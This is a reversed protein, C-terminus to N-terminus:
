GVLVFESSGNVKTVEITQDYCEKIREIHSIILIFDYDAKIYDLVKPALSLNDEDFTSWGEDIAIFNPKSLSSFKTVALSVALNIVFSEYGSATSVDREGENTRVNVHIIGNNRCTEEYVSLTFDDTLISLIKNIEEEIVPLNYKILMFPVGKTDSMAKTLEELLALEDKLMAKEKALRHVATEHEKIRKILENLEFVSQKYEFVKETQQALSTELEKVHAAQLEKKQRLTQIEKEVMCNIERQREQLKATALATQVQNMECERQLLEKEIRHENQGYERIKAHLAADIEKQRLYKEYELDFSNETKEIEAQLEDIKTQIQENTQMIQRSREAEEMSEDLRNIKLLLSHISEQTLEKELKVLKVQQEGLKEKKEQLDQFTEKADSQTAQVLEVERKKLNKLRLRNIPIHKKAERAAELFTCNEVCYQCNPDYKHQKLKAAAQKDTALKEKLNTLQPILGALETEAKLVTEVDM